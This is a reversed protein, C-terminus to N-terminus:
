KPILKMELLCRNRAPDHKRNLWNQIEQANRLRITTTNLKLGYQNLLEVRAKLTALSYNLLSLPINGKLSILIGQEKLSILYTIKQKLLEANMKLLRAYTETTSNAQISTLLEGNLDTKNATLLNLKELQASVMADYKEGYNAAALLELQAELAIREATLTQDRYARAASDSILGLIRLQVYFCITQSTGSPRITIYNRSNTFPEDAKVQPDAFFFRVGEDPFGPYHQKDYAGRAFEIAGLVRRGGIMFEGPHNNAEQM